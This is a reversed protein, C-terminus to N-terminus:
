IKNLLASVGAICKGRNAFCGALRGVGEPLDIPDIEHVFCCGLRSCDAENDALCGM